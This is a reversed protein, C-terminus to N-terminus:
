PCGAGFAALFAAVDTFDFVGDNVLDAQPHQAGFETLFAAIDTFDLAGSVAFDAVCATRATITYRRNTQVHDLDLTSGDTWTVSLGVTTTDAVGTHVVLESTANFNSGGAMDLTITQSDTTVVVKTGFGNPALAPVGSTDLDLM